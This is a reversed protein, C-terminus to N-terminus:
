TNIKFQIGHEAELTEFLQRNFSVRTKKSAMEVKQEKDKVSFRVQLKGPHSSLTKSLNEVVQSNISALDLNLTLSKSFDNGVDQLLRMSLVKVELNNEDRFRPQIKAKVFVFYENAMFQKFKLYDDSFLALEYSGSYDEMIMTGFPKGTKTVRHAAATVIGAFAIEKGKLKEPESLKAIDVNCFYNMEFRFEDLPHGSLYFGIVDKENRLKEIDSWPQCPTFKPAPMEVVSADGFLSVQQSNKTDQLGSGYRMAKELNTMNNERPDKELWQARHAYSDFDFAGAMVLSELAKRNVNRLNIRSVLDLLNKYPGNGEREITIAEVAGEGVGKVAGLGFRIEGRDNVSFNYDSENVDPGLVKIGMRRCEEMFFTIKDINSLNHTLVSAMYEAPYHAKLYATQFAV